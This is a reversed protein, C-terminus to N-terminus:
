LREQIAQLMAPVDLGFLERAYDQEGGEHMFEDKTGLRVLRARASDNDSRWEAVASGFGGIRSHEEITVVVPLHAFVQQLVTTDLPKIFPCSYVTAQVGREALLGALELVSPLMAGASLLAVDGGDRMKLWQGVALNPLSNHIIPEGKKGLRIYSPGDLTMAARLCARAEWEDGPAMVTMEPLSRLMAVEECSHHTAGLSAYALGSGVGVVVVPQRHYCLDVRIQEICRYTIFPTITYAVPRMGAMALGAAVGIMNAEAVGCNYFRQPHKDKLTDFLKNGIDGSLFVLRSDTDAIKTVENAFANRM